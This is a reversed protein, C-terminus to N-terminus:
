WSLISAPCTFSSSISSWSCAYVFWILAMTSASWGPVNMVEVATEVVAAGVLEGVAVTDVDAVAAIAGDVVDAGGGAGLAVPAGLPVVAGEVDVAGVVDAPEVDVTVVESPEPEVPGVAGLPEVDVPVVESPV